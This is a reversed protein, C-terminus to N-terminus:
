RNPIPSRNTEDDDTPREWQEEGAGPQDSRNEPKGPPQEGAAQHQDFLGALLQALDDRLRRKYAKGSEGARQGGFSVTFHEPVHEGVPGLEPQWQDIPRWAGDHFQYLEFQIVVDDAIGEFRIDLAIPLMLNQEEIPALAIKSMRKAIPAIATKLEQKSIEPARRLVRNLHNVIKRPMVAETKNIRGYVDYQEARMAKIQWSGFSIGRKDLLRKVVAGQNPAGAADIRSSQAHYQWSQRRGLTSNPDHWHNAAYPPQWPEFQPPRRFILRLILSLLWLGLLAVAVIGLARLMDGGRVRSENLQIGDELFNLGLNIIPIFLNTLRASPRPLRREEM